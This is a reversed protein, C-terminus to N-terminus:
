PIYESLTYVIDVSYYDAPKGFLKFPATEGCHYSVFVNTLSPLILNTQPGDEVIRQDSNLLQLRGAFYTPGPDGSVSLEITQLPLNGLVGRIQADDAKVDLQWTMATPVGAITDIFYVGLKTWDNYSIGNEYEFFSNFIFEVSGGSEITLRATTQNQSESTFFIFLIIAILIYRVM